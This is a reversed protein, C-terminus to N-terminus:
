KQNQQQLENKTKGYRYDIHFNPDILYNQDERFKVFGNQLLLKELIDIGLIKFNSFLLATCPEREDDSEEKESDSIDKNIDKEKAADVPL